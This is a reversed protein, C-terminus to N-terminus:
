APELLSSAMSTFKIGPLCMDLGGRCIYVVKALGIRTVAVDGPLDVVKKKKKQEDGIM